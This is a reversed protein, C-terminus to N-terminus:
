CLEEIAAFWLLAYAGCFTALSPVTCFSPQLHLFAVFPELHLFVVDWPQSYLLVVSPREGDELLTLFFRVWGLCLGRSGGWDRRSRSCVSVGKNDTDTDALRLRESNTSSPMRYQPVSPTTFHQDGVLTSASPAKKAFSIGLQRRCPCLAIDRGCAIQVGHEGCARVHARTRVSM